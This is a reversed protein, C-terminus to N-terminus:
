YELYKNCLFERGNLHKKIDNEFIELTIKTLEAKISVKQLMIQNDKYSALIICM